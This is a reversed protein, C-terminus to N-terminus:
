IYKARSWQEISPTSKLIEVVEQCLEEVNENDNLVEENGEKQTDVHNISPSRSKFVRRFSGFLRSKSDAFKRPSSSSIVPRGSEVP